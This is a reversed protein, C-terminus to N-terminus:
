SEKLACRSGFIATGIRVHTAGARIAVEADHSMGLSLEPLRARGGHLDRLRVVEQFYPEADKPDEVEPPLAMLGTARLMPQADIAELVAGLDKPHCGHKSSEGAINVEVLVSLPVTSPPPSDALGAELARVAGPSAAATRTRRLARSGLERALDVTDVTHVRGVLGVVFRCKNSQLHGILHWVIGRLDRLEEAKQVLEQVYNEGFDRQGADYAERVARTPQKKSVAILTIEQPSRGAEVAARSIRDRQESLRSSITSSM